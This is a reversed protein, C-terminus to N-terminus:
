QVRSVNCLTAMKPAGSTIARGHGLNSSLGIDLYGTRLHGAGHATMTSGGVEAVTRARAYPGEVRSYEFNLTRCGPRRRPELAPFSSKALCSRSRSFRVSAAQQWYLVQTGPSTALYGERTGQTRSDTFGSFTSYMYAPVRAPQHSTGVGSQQCGVKSERVGSRVPMHWVDCGCVARIPRGQGHSVLEYRTRGDSSRTVTVTM